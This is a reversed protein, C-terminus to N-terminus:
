RMNMRMANLQGQMPTTSQNNQMPQNIMPNMPPMQPPMQPRPMPAVPRPPFAPPRMAQSMGKKGLGLNPDYGSMSGSDSESYKM